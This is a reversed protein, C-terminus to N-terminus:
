GLDYAKGRIPDINPNGTTVTKNQGSISVSSGPNLSGLGARSMVKAASARIQFDSTVEAVVNLSPLVDNYTHEVPAYVLQGAITSYGISNQDTHVWRVGLSGRIPIAFMETTWDAQTFASTDKESVNSTNGLAASTCRGAASIM